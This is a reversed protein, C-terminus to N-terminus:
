TQPSFGHQIKCHVFSVCYRKKELTKDFFLGKKRRLYTSFFSASVGKQVKGFLVEGAGLEEGLKKAV